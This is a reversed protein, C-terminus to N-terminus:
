SQKKNAKNWIDTLQSKTVADENPYFLEVYRGRKSDAEHIIGRYGQSELQGTMLDDALKRGEATGRDVLKLGPKIYRDMIKIIEGAKRNLGVDAGTELAKRSDTFWASGGPSLEPDFKDFAKTTGHHISKQAKIYDEANKFKKAEQTLNDSQSLPNKIFGGQKNPIDEGLIKKVMKGFKEFGVEDPIANIIQAETITDPTNLNDIIHKKMEGVFEVPSDQYLKALTPDKLGENVADISQQINHVIPSSPINTNTIQAQNLNGLSKSSYNPNASPAQAENPLRPTTIIPAYKNGGSAPAYDEGKILAPLPRPTKATESAKKVVEPVEFDKGTTGGFRSAMSKGKLGGALEAGIVTGFPGFHSGVMGGLVQAFYKGLKGGQVKKNDLKELFNQFAYIKSLEKNVENVDVSTTNGAVLDKLGKAIAKDAQKTAENEYNITSYKNVKAKHIDAVPIYGNKDTLRSYGALDQKLKNEAQILASGMLGSDEVSKTLAKKVDKFSVKNGERVLNQNIVDEYPQIVKNLRSIAGDEGRIVLSGTEDVAGDLLSSKSAMDILDVGQAKGKEIAKNISPYKEAIKKLEAKRKIEVNQAKGEAGFTDQIKGAGRTALGLGASIATGAGPILANVGTRDEGRQGSLGSTVDSVYGPILEKGFQKAGEKSFLKTAQSSGPLLTNAVASTLGAGATAKVDGGTQGASIILDPATRALVQAFRPMSATAPNVVGATEIYPIVNGVIEGAKGSTTELSKEFPKQYVNEKIKGLAQTYKDAYSTDAGVLKGLGSATKLATEGLGLGAKGIASGIGIGFNSLQGLVPTENLANVTSPPNIVPALRERRSQVGTSTQVGHKQAIADIEQTTLRPM